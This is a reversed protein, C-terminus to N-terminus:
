SGCAHVQNRGQSKAWYMADDARKLVEVSQDLSSQFLAVGISASCHDFTLLQESGASRTLFRYPQALADRVKEAVLTASVSSEEASESLSPLLIAFEDGGLRGVVDGERLVAAIRTGAEILLKDGVEHGYQDNISKFKDLDLFMVAGCARNRRSTVLAYELREMFMRRNPLGTLTDYYALEKLKATAEEIRQELKSREVLLDRRMQNIGESLTRLEAIDSEVRVETMLDGHGLKSIATSLTEIPAVVKQQIKQRILAIALGLLLILIGTFLALKSKSQVVKAREVVVGAYGIVTPVGASVEDLTISTTLIPQCLVVHSKLQLLPPTDPQNCTQPTLSEQLRLIAYDREADQHEYQLEKVLLTRDAQFILVAEVDRQRLLSKAVDHLMARNGTFIGYESSTAAQRAFMIGREELEEELAAFRDHLYFVIFIVALVVLPVLSLLLLQRSFSCRNRMM